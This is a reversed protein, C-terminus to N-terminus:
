KKSLIKDVAARKTADNGSESKLLSKIKIWDFFIITFLTPGAARFIHYLWSHQEHFFIKDGIVGGTLWIFWNMIFSITLQKLLSLNRYWENYKKFM